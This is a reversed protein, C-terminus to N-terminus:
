YVIEKNYTVGRKAGHALKYAIIQGTAHRRSASYFLGKQNALKSEHNSRVQNFRFRSEHYFKEFEEGNMLLRMKGRYQCFPAGEKM